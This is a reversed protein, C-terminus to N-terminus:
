QIYWWDQCDPDTFPHIALTSLRSRHTKNFDKALLRLWGKAIYLTFAWQPLCSRQWSGKRVSPLEQASLNASLYQRPKGRLGGVFPRRLVQMPWTMALGNPGYTPWVYNARWFTVLRLYWRPLIQKGMVLHQSWRKYAGAGGFSPNKRLARNTRPRTAWQYDTGTIGCFMNMEQTLRPSGILGKILVLTDEWWLLYIAM